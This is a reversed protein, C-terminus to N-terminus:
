ELKVTSSILCMNRPSELVDFIAEFHVSHGNEFLFLASDLLILTEMTAQIGSQLM